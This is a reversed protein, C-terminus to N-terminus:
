QGKGSSSMVPKVVVPYGIQETEKILTELDEAYAFKATRLGLRHALNRIRDRNMTMNVAYASPVVQIGSNEFDELVETRIAEVEPVIIDPKFQNIAHTLQETSLMDIVCRDDAVQMAPANDY